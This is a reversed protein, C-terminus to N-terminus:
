GDGGRGCRRLDAIPHGRRLYRLQRRPDEGVLETAVYWNTTGPQVGIILEEMAKFEEGNSFRDEDIRVLMRQVLSVYGFSYDVIQARDEKITIGDAAM